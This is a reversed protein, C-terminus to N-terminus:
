SAYLMRNKRKLMVMNFGIVAALLYFMPTALLIPEIGVREALPAMMWLILSAVGWAGGIVFGMRGGLTFGKAYRALTVILPYASGSNFGSIFLFALAYNNKMMFLYAYLFPVGLLLSTILAFLEGKKHAIWSWFFTGLVTGGALFMVTLGGFDLTFGLQHIRQPLLACLLTPATTAPIAMMMIFIFGFQEIKHNVQMPKNNDTEVALRIKTLYIGTFAIAPLILLWLLGYFGLATILMACIWGGMSYGLYGGNLFISSALSPPINELSHVARLSEPHMIGVGVATVAILPVMFWFSYDHAPLIAIFCVCGLLLMGIPLLLPKENNGRIHGTCVQIFNCVINLISILVIGATLSFGFRTQIAPMIVPLLGAFVDATFHASSLIVLQIWVFHAAALKKM